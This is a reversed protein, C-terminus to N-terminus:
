EGKTIAQRNIAQWSRSSGRPANIMKKTKDKNHLGIIKKIPIGGDKEWSFSGPRSPNGDVIDKVRKKDDLVPFHYSLDIGGKKKDKYVTDCFVMSPLEEKTWLSRLLTPISLCGALFMRVSYKFYTWSHKFHLKATRVKATECHEDRKRWFKGFLRRGEAEEEAQKYISAPAKYAHGMEPDSANRDAQEKHAEEIVEEITKSKDYEEKIM